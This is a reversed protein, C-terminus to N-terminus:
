IISIDTNDSVTHEVSKEGVFGVSTERPGLTTVLGRAMPATVPRAPARMAVLSFEGAEEAVTVQAQEHQPQDLVLGPMAIFDNLFNFIEGAANIRRAWTDNVRRQRQQLFDAMDLARQDVLALPLERDGVSPTCKERGVLDRGIRQESAKLLGCLG